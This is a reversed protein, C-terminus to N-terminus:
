NCVQELSDNKAQQHIEELETSNYYMQDDNTTNQMAYEYLALCDRNLIM